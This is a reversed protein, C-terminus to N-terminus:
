SDVRRRRRTATRLATRCRELGRELQAARRVLPVAEAELRDGRAVERQYVAGPVLAGRLIAGLVLLSIFGGFAWGGADAIVTIDPVDRRREAM